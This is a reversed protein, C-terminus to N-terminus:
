EDETDYRRSEGSEDDGEKNYKKMLSKYEKTKRIVSLDKDGAIQDFKKYGNRIAMELCFISEKARQQLAYVCALNYYAVAASKADLEVVKNFDKEAESLKRLRLYCVGRKSYADVYGPNIDIATTFAQIADDYKKNKLLESALKFYEEPPKAHIQVWVHVRSDKRQSNAPLNALAVGIKVPVSTARPGARFYMRKQDYTVEGYASAESVDWKIALEEARIQPVPSFVNCQLKLITGAAVYLTSEKVSKNNDNLNLVDLGVSPLVVLKAQDDVGHANEVAVKCWGKGPRSGAIITGDEGMSQALEKPEVSWRVQRQVDSFDIKRGSADKGQVSISFNYSEGPALIVEKTNIEIQDVRVMSITVPKSEVLRSNNDWQEYSAGITFIGPQDALLRGSDQLELPKENCSIKWRIKKSEIAVEDGWVDYGKAEIAISVPKNGMFFRTNNAPAVVKIERLPNPSLSTKSPDIYKPILTPLIEEEKAAVDKNKKSLRAICGPSLGPIGGRQYAVCQEAMVDIVKAKGLVEGQPTVLELMSNEQIGANKGMNVTIIDTVKRVRAKLPVRDAVRQAAVQVSREFASKLLTLADEPSTKNAWDAAYASFTERVVESQEHTDYVFLLLHVKGLLVEKDNPHIFKVRWYEVLTVKAVGFYRAAPNRTIELHPIEQRLVNVLTNMGWTKELNKNFAPFSTAGVINVFCIEPSTVTREQAATPLLPALCLVILSITRLLSM